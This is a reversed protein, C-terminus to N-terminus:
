RSFLTMETVGLTQSLKSMNEFGEKGIRAEFDEVKLESIESIRRKNFVTIRVILSYAFKVYNNYTPNKTKMYTCIEDQVYDKLLLLDSTATIEAERDSLGIQWLQWKPIGNLKTCKM